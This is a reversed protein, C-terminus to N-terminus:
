NPLKTSHYQTEQITVSYHDFLCSMTSYLKKEMMFLFSTKQLYTTNSILFANSFCHTVAFAASFHRGFKLVSLIYFILLDRFIIM